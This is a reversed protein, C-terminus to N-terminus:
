RLRPVTQVTVAETCAKGCSEEWQASVRREAHDDIAAAVYITKDGTNVRYLRIGEFEAVVEVKLSSGPATKAEAPRLPTAECGFLMVGAAAVGFGIILVGILKKM